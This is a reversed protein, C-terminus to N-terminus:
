LIVQIVRFGVEKRPLLTIDEENEIMNTLDRKYFSGRIVKDKCIEQINGIFDYLGKRGFNTGIKHYGYCINFDSINKYAVLEWEDSTPLTYKLDNENNESLWNVFNIADEWTINVMPYINRDEIYIKQKKEVQNTDDCFYDYEKLTIPYKGFYVIRDDDLEIKVLKIDFSEGNKLSITETIENKNQEEKIIEDILDKFYKTSLGYLEKSKEEIQQSTIIGVICNNVVIPSGSLIAIWVFILM